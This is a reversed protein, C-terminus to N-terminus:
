EHHAVDSGDKTVGLCGNLWLLINLVRHCQNTDNHAEDCKQQESKGVAEIREPLMQSLVYCSVQSFTIDGSEHILFNGVEFNVLDLLYWCLDSFYEIRDL